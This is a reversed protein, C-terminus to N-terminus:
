AEKIEDLQRRIPSHLITHMLYKDKEIAYLHFLGNTDEPEYSDSVLSVYPMKETAKQSRVNEKRIRIYITEIDEEFFLENFFATKAKQNYGKGFYDKGIWTALFGTNDKIDYLNITGIPQNWEDVITRSILQGQEEAEMTQKTMFIYEDYSGAKHRVFPFVAPDVMHTFLQQCESLDRERIIM